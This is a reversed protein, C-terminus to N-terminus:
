EQNQRSSSRGLDSGERVWAEILRYSVALVLPGVFIGVLGFSVLGGIVGAFVLLLPLRGGRRILIPRLVNDMSSVVLTWVLLATAWGTDGDWYMWAVACFLVPAAGIQAIALVFMLATLLGAFPIGVVALGLGGMVSQVLATVVIGFAVGRIAQVSLDVVEEGRAGALRWFFLRVGRAASEGYTYMVAAVILALLFQLAVMGFGGVQAAFFRAIGRAYPEIKATLASPGTTAIDNWFAAIRPGAYPISELWAPLTPLHAERLSQVWSMIQEAHDVLTSIALWFPIVFALVLASMMLTVAIWRRHWVRAQLNLMLSWTSVVIMSAWILAPLFPRLIWFCAAILGFIFLVAFTTRAIDQRVTVPIPPARPPQASEGTVEAPARGLPAAGAPGAPVRQTTTEDPSM